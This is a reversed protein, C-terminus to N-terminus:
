LKPPPGPDVRVAAVCGGKAGLGQPSADRDDWHPRYMYTRTHKRTTGPRLPSRDGPQHPRPSREESLTSVDLDEEDSHTDPERQHPCANCPPEPYSFMSDEESLIEDLDSLTPLVLSEEDSHVGPEEEHPWASRLTWMERDPTPGPESEITSIALPKEEEHSSGLDAGSPVQKNKVEADPLTAEGAYAQKEKVVKERWAEWDLSDRVEKVAEELPTDERYEGNRYRVLASEVWPDPRFPQQFGGSLMEQLAPIRGCCRAQWYTSALCAGKRGGLDDLGGPAYYPNGRAMWLDALVEARFETVNSAGYVAGGPLQRRTEPSVVLESLKIGGEKDSALSPFVHNPLIFQLMTDPQKWGKPDSRYDCLHGIEHLVRSVTHTLARRFDTGENLVKATSVPDVLILGVAPVALTDVPVGDYTLHNVFYIGRLDIQEFFLTPAHALM